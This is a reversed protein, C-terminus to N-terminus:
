ELVEGSVLDIWIAGPVLAKWDALSKWNYGEDQIEQLTTVGHVTTQQGGFSNCAADFAIAEADSLSSMVDESVVIQPQGGLASRLANRGASTLVDENLVPISPLRRNRDSRHRLLLENGRGSAPDLGIATIRDAIEQEDPEDMNALVYASTESVVINTFGRAVLEEAIWGFGGGVILFRRNYAAPGLYNDFYGAVKEVLPKLTSRTYGLILQPRSAPFGDMEGHLRYAADWTAKLNWDQLPM